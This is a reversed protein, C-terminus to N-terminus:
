RPDPATEKAVAQCRALQRAPHDRGADDVATGLLVAHEADTLTLVESLSLAVTVSPCRQGAELQVLYPHSIGALRAAERLRLGARRRADGLIGGLDPSPTRRVRLRRVDVDGGEERKAGDPVQEGSM